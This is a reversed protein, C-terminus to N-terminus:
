SRGACRTAGTEIQERLPELRTPVQILTKVFNEFANPIYRCEPRLSEKNVDYFPPSPTAKFKLSSLDGNSSASYCYLMGLVLDPITKERLRKYLGVTITFQRKAQSFSSSTDSLTTLPASLGSFVTDYEPIHTLEMRFNFAPKTAGPALPQQSQACGM